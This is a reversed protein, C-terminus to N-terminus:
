GTLWPGFPPMSVSLGYVFVLLCGVTLGVTLKLASILRFSSSACSSSFVTLAVAPVFGAGQITLGFIAPAALTCALGRWRVPAQKQAHTAFAQSMITAGIIGLVVCLATPFNGPGMQLAPGIELNRAEWAFLAAFGLFIVGALFDDRNLRM